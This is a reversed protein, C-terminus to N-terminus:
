LGCPYAPLPPPLSTCFPVIYHAGLSAELGAAVAEQNKIETQQESYPITSDYSPLGLCSFVRQFMQTSASKRALGKILHLHRMTPNTQCSTLDALLVLAHQLPCEIFCSMSTYKPGGHHASPATVVM